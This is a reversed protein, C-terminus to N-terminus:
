LQRYHLDTLLEPETSIAMTLYFADQSYGSSEDLNYLMIL